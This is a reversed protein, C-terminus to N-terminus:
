IQLHRFSNELPTKAKTSHGMIQDFRIRADELCMKRYSPQDGVCGKKEAEAKARAKAAKLDKKVRGWAVKRRLKIMLEPKGRVFYQEHGFELHEDSGKIRVFGHSKLDKIFHSLKNRFFRRLIKKEVLEKPDWIVFSKNSESWSIISDLSPDDVVKYIGTYFQSLSMWAMARMRVEDADIIIRPERRVTMSGNKEAEARAKAKKASKKMRNMAAQLRMKKLLEPKGRVFYQKHGFELQEDSGEIRVFGYTDLETIFQSLNCCFFRKLIKKTFLEKPNWIIFSKNSKSWSITSDLSPDDVIEYIAVHFQLM